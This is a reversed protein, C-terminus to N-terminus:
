YYSLTQTSPALGADKLTASHLHSAFKLHIMGGFPTSLFPTLIGLVSFPNTVEESKSGSPFRLLVRRAITNNPSLVMSSSYLAGELVRHRSPPLPGLLGDDVPHLIGLHFM